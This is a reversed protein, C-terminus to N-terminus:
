VPGPTFAPAARRLWRWRRVSAWRVPRRDQVIAPLAKTLERVIWRLGGPDSIDGHRSMKLYRLLRIPISVLMLPLPENYLSYLCDNRIVYRLYRMPSRGAPDVLHAVLAEPDYVVHYGANLLRLCYDKEEGYFYFAPRYSGLELFLRRRLLHAFGIYAPVYSLYQVPSPQMSSPWPTGDEHAMACAVAGVDAHEVILELARRIGRDDVLLTDDDLLLVVDSRAMEVMTNRAVIPGQRGPQSIFNLKALLDAPLDDLVPRVPIDSSDDVVIIDTILDAILALSAVCRALSEPRNRTAIGVSLRHSESEPQRAV